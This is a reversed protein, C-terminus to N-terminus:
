EYSLAVIPNLKSAKHAPYLGFFIGIVMSFGASIFFSSVSLHLKWQVADSIVKSLLIGFGIGILAGVLTLTVAETLFQGRIVRPSAGLAKRVGIERTREAVSVLMINMIGIGGVLLSIGAIAALFTSFTGTIDEAIQVLTASTFVSYARSETILTDLYAKIEDTISVADFGEKVKITYFGVADTNMYRQIYTNFPIYVTDDYSMSLSGDKSEMVGSVIYSKGASGRYLTVSKGVPNEGNFLEEAVNSGLIIVQSKNINQEATFWSGASVNYSMTTNWDSDTAYLQYRSIEKQYRLYVNASNMPLVTEIGNVHSIIDDGLTRTFIGSSSNRAFLTILDTGASDLSDTISSSASQGLTLITVVAMVGIVIGLLSLLTRLKNSLMSKFALKINESIM